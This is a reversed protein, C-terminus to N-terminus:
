HGGEPPEMPPAWEAGCNGCRAIYLGPREVFGEHNCDVDGRTIEIWGRPVRHPPLVRQPAAVAARAGGDEVLGLTNLYEHYLDLVQQITAPKKEDIWAAAARDDVEIDEKGQREIRDALRRLNAAWYIAWHMEM